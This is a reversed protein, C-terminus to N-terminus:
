RVSEQPDKNWSVIRLGQPSLELECYSSTRVKLEKMRCQQSHEQLLSAICSVFYRINGNNSVAVVADVGQFPCLLWELWKKIAEIRQEESGGFVEQPWVAAESWDAEERPWHEKIEGQLLDKGSALILKM